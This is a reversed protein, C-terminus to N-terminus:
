EHKFRISVTNDDPYEATGDIQNVLQDFLIKRMKSESLVPAIGSGNDSYTLLCGGDVEETKFTIKKSSVESFSFEMSLDIMENLLMMLHFTEKPKIRVDAESENSFAIGSRIYHDNLIKIFEGFFEGSGVLGDDSYYMLNQIASVSAISVYSFNVIEEDDIGFRKQLKMFALLAQIDNNLRHNFKKLVARKEDHTEM